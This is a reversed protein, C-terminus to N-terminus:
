SAAGALHAEIAGRDYLLRGADRVPQPGFGAKRWNRLTVTSVGVLAAAETQNLGVRLTAPPTIHM